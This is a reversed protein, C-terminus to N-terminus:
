WVDVEDGAHLRCSIRHLTYNLLVPKPWSPWQAPGPIAAVYATAVARNRRPTVRQPSMCSALRPPRKLDCSTTPRLLCTTM